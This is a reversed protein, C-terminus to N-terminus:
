ATEAGIQEAKMASLTPLEEGSLIKYANKLSELEELRQSVREEYSYGSDVCTPKLKDYYNLAATLEDQTKKLSDETSALMTETTIKKEKKHEMETEKVAKTKESEAMLKEYAAQAQAESAETSTQERVFDDQIVELMGLVGTSEDQQGKYPSDFTEPADVAPQQTLATATAAKAYFDRLVAIAQAVAEQGEKAESVTKANTAKEDTRIETAKAMQKDLEAIDDSLDEIEQGLKASAATLKEVEAQLEDVEQAKNKRTLANKGLEAQCYAKHDAEQSAEEMLKMLLDKIMKKVKVFPDATAKEAALALEKSGLRTAQERLLSAVQQLKPSRVSASRLQAFSPKQLFAGRSSPGEAVASSSIIEIAKGLAEIEEARLKQRSEFDSTKVSCLATLDALYSEDEKKAASTEAFDGEAEAKAAARKGKFETKVATERTAGEVQDTLKQKLTDYAHRTNM